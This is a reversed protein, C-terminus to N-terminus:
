AAHREGVIRGINVPAFFEQVPGTGTYREVRSAGALREAIWPIELLASHFTPELNSLVRRWEAVPWVVGLYTLGGNTPLVVYFRGDRVFLHTHPAAFDRWYSYVNCTTSPRVHYKAAGVAAAIRSHKGDAGVVLHARAEV